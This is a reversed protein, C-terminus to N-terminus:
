VGNASSGGEIEMPLVRECQQWETRLKWSGLLRDAIMMLEQESLLAVPSGAGLRHHMGSAFAFVKAQETRLADLLQEIHYRKNWGVVGAPLGLKEGLGSADLHHGRVTSLVFSDLYPLPWAKFSRLVQLLRANYQHWNFCHWGELVHVYFAFYRLRRLASSECVCVCVCM